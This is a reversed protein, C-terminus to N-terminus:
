AAEAEYHMQARDLVDDPDLGRASTLHLLDAILEIALETLVLDRRQGELAIGDRGRYTQLAEFAREARQRAAEAGVAIECWVVKGVATAIVGWDAAMAALMHLGRGCEAGCNVSRAVPLACSKDHMEVRVRDSKRELILTAPEGEGLHKIVNTALETVALAAEDVVNPLGWQGLQAGAARRLLRVETPVAEFPLVYRHQRDPTGAGPM